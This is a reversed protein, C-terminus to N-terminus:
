DLTSLQDPNVQAGESVGEQISQVTDDVSDMQVDVGHAVKRVETAEVEFSNVAQRGSKEVGIRLFLSILQSLWYFPKRM